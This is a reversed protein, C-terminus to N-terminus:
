KLRAITHFGPGACTRYKSGTTNTCAYKSPDFKYFPCAFLRNSKDGDPTPDSRRRKKHTDEEDDDPPTSERNGVKRKQGRSKTYQGQNSVEPKASTKSTTSTTDGHGCEVFAGCSSSFMSYFEQMYKILLRHKALVVVLEEDDEVLETDDSGTTNGPSDEPQQGTNGEPHLNREGHTRKDKPFEGEMCLSLGGCTKPSYESSGPEGVTEQMSRTIGTEVIVEKALSSAQENSHVQAESDVTTVATGVNQEVLCNSMDSGPNKSPSGAETTSRQENPANVSTILKSTSPSGQMEDDPRTTDIFHVGDESAVAPLDCLQLGSLPAVEPLISPLSKEARKKSSDEQFPPKPASEDVLNTLLIISVISITSVKISVDERESAVPSVPRREDIREREILIIGATPRVGLYVPLNRFFRTTRFSELFRPLNPSILLSHVSHSLSRGTSNFSIATILGTFRATWRLRGSAGRHRNPSQRGIVMLCTDSLPPPFKKRLSRQLALVLRRLSHQVMFILRRLSHQLILVPRIGLASLPISGLGTSEPLSFHLPLIARLWSAM